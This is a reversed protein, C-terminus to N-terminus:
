SLLGPIIPAFFFDEHGARAAASGSTLPERTWHAVVNWLKGTDVPKSIFDNAGAAVFAQRDSDRVNATMAIVPVRTSGTMTRLMRTADLGNMIPMLMDRLVADFKTGRQVAEVALKGNEATEVVVGAMELLTRAVERSLADDDVLLVRKGALTSPPENFTAMATGDSARLRLRVTFWFTSGVGESRFGIEGGMAAVLRRSIAVGLGTGGKRAATLQAESFDGLLIDM